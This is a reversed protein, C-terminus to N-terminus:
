LHSNGPEKPAHGSGSWVRGATAGVSAASDALIGDCAWSTDDGASSDGADKPVDGSAGVLINNAVSAWSIDRVTGSRKPLEGSARLVGGAVGMSGASDALDDPGTASAGSTDIVAGSGANLPASPSALSQPRSISTLFVKM